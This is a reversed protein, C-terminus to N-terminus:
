NGCFVVGGHLNVDAVERIVADHGVCSCDGVVDASKDTIHSSTVHSDAVKCVLGPNEGLFHLGVSSPLLNSPTLRIEMEEEVIEAEKRRFRFIPEV